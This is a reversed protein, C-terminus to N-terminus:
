CGYKRRIGEALRGPTEIKELYEKARQNNGVSGCLDALMCLVTENGPSLEDLYELMRFAYRFMNQEMFIDTLELLMGGKDAVATHVMYQLMDPTIWNSRIFDLLLEKGHEDKAFEIKWLIFKLQILKSKIEETSKGIDLITVKEDAQIEREYIQMIVILYAMQTKSKYTEIFDKNRFLRLLEERAETSGAQIKKDIQMLYIKEQEKNQRNWEQEKKEKEQIYEETHMYAWEKQSEM